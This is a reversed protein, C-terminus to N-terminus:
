EMAGNMAFRTRLGHNIAQMMGSACVKGDGRGFYAAAKNAAEVLATAGIQIIRKRLRMDELSVEANKHIYYLGTLLRSHVACNGERALVGCLTLVDVLGDFDKEAIRQALAVSKFGCPSGSSQTIHLGAEDLAMQVSAATDHEAALSARYKDLASVNRRNTNSALFASAENKVGAVRFVMCPLSSIDSRRDAALKRHQGDIVWFIGDREAVILAGCAIWSWSSALELIKGQYAERQYIERNVNLLRKNIMRFEGQDDRMEWGYRSVKDIGHPTMEMANM